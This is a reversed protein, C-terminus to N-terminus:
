GMLENKQMFEKLTNEDTEGVLSDSVETGTIVITTPTGWEKNEKFFTNSSTFNTYDDQSLENLDIYYINVKNKNAFKKLVPMFNQCHVCTASEVVLVFKEGSNQMETYQKYSLEKLYGADESASNKSVAVIGIVVVVVAAAILILDTLHSKVFGPQEKQVKEEVREKTDKKVEKVEKAVKVEKTVKDNNKKVNNNKITNNKKTNTNKKSNNKKTEAM